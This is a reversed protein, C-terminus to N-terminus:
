AIAPHIWAKGTTLPPTRFVIKKTIKDRMPVVTVGAKRNLWKMRFPQRGEIIREPWPWDSLIEITSPPRVLQTFSNLLRGLDKVGVERKVFDKKAETRLIGVLSKAILALIRQNYKGEITLSVVVTQEAM